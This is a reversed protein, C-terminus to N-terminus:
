GHGPGPGWRAARPAPGPRTVAPEPSRAHLVFRTHLWTRLWDRLRHRALLDYRVAAAIPAHSAAAIEVFGAEAVLGALRDVRLGHAFPLQALIAEHRARDEDDGRGNGPGALRDLMTLAAGALRGVRPRTAWNGDFVILHGGPRLVRRWELLAGGPDTLTWVLHRCVVADYAADPEHTAEADALFFRARGNGSHKATARALMDESFDICTVRHGLALLVGTVEGTGCAAELVDLPAPGLRQRLAAAWAAHVLGAPIRHGFSQDFTAARDSWYARVEEKLSWNRAPVSTALPVPTM